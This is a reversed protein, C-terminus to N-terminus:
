GYRDVLGALFHRAEAENHFPSKQRSSLVQRIQGSTDSGEFLELVERVLQGKENLLPKYSDAKKALDSPQLPRSLFTSYKQRTGNLEIAWSWEGYEPRQLNFILQQGKLVPVPPDLPLYVQRWHTKEAM